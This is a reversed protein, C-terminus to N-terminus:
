PRCYCCSREDATATGSAPTRQLGLEVRRTELLRPHSGSDAILMVTHVKVGFRDEVRSGDKANM